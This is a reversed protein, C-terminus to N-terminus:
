MVTGCNKTQIQGLTSHFLSSPIVKVTTRGTAEDGDRERTFSAWYRMILRALTSSTCFSTILLNSCQSTKDLVHQPYFFFAYADTCKCWLPHNGNCLLYSSNGCERKRLCPWESHSRSRSKCFTMLRKRALKTMAPTSGNSSSLQDCKIIPLWWNVTLRRESIFQWIKLGIWTNSKGAVFCFHHRGEETILGFTVPWHPLHWM